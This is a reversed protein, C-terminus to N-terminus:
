VGGVGRSSRAAARREESQKRGDHCPKCLSQTNAGDFFLARDGRHPVVHDCITAAEVRGDAACMRCLPEVSLRWARLKLWAATKYWARWPQSARRAHDHQQRHQQAHADCFRGDTLHGCGVAACPKKPKWPM